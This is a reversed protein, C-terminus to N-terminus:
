RDEKFDSGGPHPGRSVPVLPVLGSSFVYSRVSNSQPVPNPLRQLRPLIKAAVTLEGDVGDGGMWLDHVVLLGVSVELRRRYTNRITNNRM